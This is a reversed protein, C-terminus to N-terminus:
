SRKEDGQNRKEDRLPWEESFHPPLSMPLFTAKESGCILLGSVQQERRKEAADEYILSGIITLPLRGEIRHEVQSKTL